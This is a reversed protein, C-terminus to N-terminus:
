MRLAYIYERPFDEYIGSFTVLDGEKKKNLMENAEKVTNVAQDDIHTIIFGERMETYRALRGNDLKSVRVGNKLELRNLIKQDVDEMSLGLSAVVGREERKITGLEGNRNKLTVPLNVIKGKRDVKVDIKDGPRKRGIYEILAASSKIEADDLQIVV